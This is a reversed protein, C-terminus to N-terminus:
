DQDSEDLGILDEEDPSFAMIATIKTQEAQSLKQALAGWLMQQRKRDPLNEFEGAVMFGFLQGSPSENLRIDKVSPFSGKLADTVKERIGM